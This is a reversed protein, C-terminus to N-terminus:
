QHGAVRTAQALLRVGERYDTVAPAWALEARARENSVRMSTTMVTHVYPLARLLWGPVRRPRPAGFAAATGDLFDGWRVPHGDVVNYAAGARGRELAAVTATVADDLHILNALGGGDRPVPFRRKRLMDVIADTGAGPGYFLGYRLAVGAIGPAGCAQEETARMAAVHAGVPGPVPVGFPDDETLLRDGHDRYGYGFVISQTVFRHAGVQRAAAVLNATGTVRLANTAAMDAHRMPAGRLATLEHVVADATVGDVARLLGARDMVDAVVPEAGLARLREANARSRTLGVVRHGAAVLRRTLPIGIAGSAGALLVKMAQESSATVTDFV